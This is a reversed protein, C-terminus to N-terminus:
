RPEVSIVVSDMTHVESAGAIVVPEKSSHMHDHIILSGTVVSLALLVSSLMCITLHRAPHYTFTM